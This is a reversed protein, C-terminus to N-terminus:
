PRPSCAMSFGGAPDSVPRSLRRTSVLNTGGGIGAVARYLILSLVSQAPSHSTPPPTSGTGLRIQLWPCWLPRPSSLPPLSAWAIQRRLSILIASSRRACHRWAVPSPSSPCCSSICPQLHVVRHSLRAALQEIELLSAPLVTAVHLDLAHRALHEGPLETSPTPKM